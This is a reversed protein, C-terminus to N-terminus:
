MLTTEKELLLVFHVFHQFNGGFCLL